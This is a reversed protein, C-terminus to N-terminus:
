PMSVRLRLYVPLGNVMPATASAAGDDAVDAALISWSKLDTSSEPTLIVDATGPGKRYSMIVTSNVNTTINPLSSPDAVTPTMGLAYEVLNVATDSDPDAGPLGLTGANAGFHLAAWSAYGSRGGDGNFAPTPVTALWSAPLSPDAGTTLTLSSGDGDAAGPWPDKDKYDITVLVIGSSSELTLTEGSNALNGKYVGAIAVSAGYRARFAELNRVVVARQGAQLASSALELGVGNSFRLGALNIAHGSTNELEIFEFDNEEFTQPSTLSLGALFETESPDAPHYDFERITVGGPGALAEVIFQSTQLASWGTAGFKRANIVASNSLTLPETYLIAKPSLGAASASEFTLQPMALADSGSKSSNMLHIALINPGIKLATMGPNADFEDFVIANGDANSATATSNWALTAPANADAIRVGNIFAVFGDEYKFNITLSSIAELAAQDAIVFPVRVFISANVGQMSSADIGTLDPYDFGIGTTGSLWNSDDFEALHWRDGLSDDLPVVATAPVREPLLIEPESATAPVRPDSGDLTYYISGSSTDFSIQKGTGLAGGTTPTGDVLFEPGAVYKVSESGPWKEKEWKARFYSTRNPEEIPFFEERIKNVEAIWEVDRTYPNSRRRDGWRASECVIAIDLMAAYRNWRALSAEPTLAAGPAFHKQLRDGFRIQFEPIDDLSAFFEPGDQSSAALAGIARVNELVRESDWVYFRWRSNSSGGGAARWNGDTKLDDNHGFHETIYYDIYNDVDLRKVIEPWDRNRVATRLENFSTPREPPTVNDVTSDDAIGFYNAYNANDLREHINYVGWYIGNLYLHCYHGHGADPNGMEMLTDRMWQDRIMTARRQQGSDRHIWSNNYMARLHISNFRIAADEADFLPYDLEDTGYKERFRLSMSHKISSDPNRSAGGQIKVGCQLSFGAETNVGDQARDPRFYEVSGAKELDSTTRSYLGATGFIDDVPMSMSVVPLARLGQLFRDRYVDSQAVEPDVEYDANPEGGWRTPYGDPAKQQAVASPFIYTQTDINTPEFGVKFARAKLVTTTNISIPGSYVEGTSESPPSCDLTYRIEAGETATSIEVAFPATYIGRRVSFRTDKVWVFEEPNNAAGPTPNKLHRPQTEILAYSVDAFQEPFTRGSAPFASVTNSQPDTLALYDGASDIRFNTHLDSNSRTLGEGSAFVVLYGDAAVDVAPFAWKFPIDPDDTLHWGDLNVTAPGANYIEIWDEFTGDVSGPVETALNRAMFESICLGGDGAGAIAVTASNLVGSVFVLLVALHHRLFPPPTM